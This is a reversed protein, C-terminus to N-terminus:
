PREGRLRQADRQLEALTDAFLPPAHALRARLWRVLLAAAVAYALALLGLVGPGFRSWLALALWASLAALALAFLLAAGLAAFLSVALRELALDAEYRALELRGALLALLTGALRQLADLLGPADAPSRL